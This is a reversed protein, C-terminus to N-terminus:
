RIDTQDNKPSLQSDPPPPGVPQQQQQPPRSQGTPQGPRPQDRNFQGQPPPPRNNPGRYNGQNQNNDQNFSQNFDEKQQIQAPVRNGSPHRQNAINPSRQNSGTPRDSQELSQSPPPPRRDIPQGRNIM